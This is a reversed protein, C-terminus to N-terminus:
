SPLRPPNIPTIPLEVTKLKPVLLHFVFFAVVYVSGAVFFLMLMNGQKRLVWASALTMLAAGVQAAFGGLGIVSAVAQKPFVDSVIAFLNSALGQHAAHALGILCVCAWMSSFQTVLMVPVTMACFIFMSTKRARTLDWGRSIWRSSIWGGGVSGAYGLAYVIVLPAGFDSLQLGFRQSLFLPLMALYWFWVADTMFKFNMYAWTERRALLASWPVHGPSVPRAAGAGPTHYLRLWLAVWVFGTAAVAVFSMRWGCGAYLWPIVLPVLMAGINSGGKFVGIALARENPSFWEAVTKNGAPMNASQSFGFVFRTLKMAAVSSAAGGLGAAVSWVVVALAYGMRTGVADVFRGMFPFGIAFGIQFWFVVDAYDAASWGLEHILEPALVGLVQRDLYNNATVLFLLGCM